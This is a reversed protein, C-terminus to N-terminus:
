KKRLRKFVKKARQYKKYLKHGGEAELVALLECWVKDEELQCFNKVNQKSVKNKMTSKSTYRKKMTSKFDGLHVGRLKINFGLPPMPLGSDKVIRALMVEDSERYGGIKGNVAKKRYYQRMGKTREWWRPTVMVFGAGIREFRGMWGSLSIEPRYPRKPPGHHAAYCTKMKKMRSMHWGKLTPATRFLLLDVDTFIVQDFRKFHKHPILFRLCNITSERKEPLREFISIPDEFKVGADRMIKFCKETTTDIKGKIFTKVTYEPYERRLIYIYLPLYHQFYNDSVITTICTKM